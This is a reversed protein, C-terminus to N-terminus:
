VGWTWGALILNGIAEGEYRMVFSITQDENGTWLPHGLCKVVVDNNKVKPYFYECNAKHAKFAKTLAKSLKAYERKTTKDNESIVTVNTM